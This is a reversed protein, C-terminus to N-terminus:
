KESLIRNFVNKLMLNNIYGINKFCIVNKILIVILELMYMSFFYAGM